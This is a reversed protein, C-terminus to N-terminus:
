DDFIVCCPEDDMSETMSKIMDKLFSLKKKKKKKKM